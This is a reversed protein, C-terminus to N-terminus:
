ALKVRPRRMLDVLTLRRPRRVRGDVSLSWDGANLRPVGLHCLVITDEVRTVRDTLQHPQLPHRGYAEAPDLRARTVGLRGSSRWARTSRGTPSFNRSAPRRSM